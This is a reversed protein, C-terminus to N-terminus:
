FINNLWLFINWFLSLVRVRYHSVGFELFYYNLFVIILMHLDPWSFPFYCYNDVLSGFEQTGKQWYMTVFFEFIFVLQLIAVAYISPETFSFVFNNEQILYLNGYDLIRSKVDKTQEVQLYLLFYLIRLPYKLAILLDKKEGRHYCLLLSVTEVILLM